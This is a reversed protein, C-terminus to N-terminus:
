GNHIRAVDRTNHHKKFVYHTSATLMLAVVSGGFIIFMGPLRVQIMYILICGLLTMLSLIPSTFVYIFSNKCVNKINTDYHAMVPFVYLMLLGFIISIGTLPIFLWKLPNDGIQLLYYLDIYLVFGVLVVLVGLINSKMFEEKYAKWFTQFVPIESEGMVWKRCVAFLAATAPFFGFLILGLISGAIWLLNVLALRSIWESLRYISGMLTTM